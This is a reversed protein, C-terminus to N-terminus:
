EPFSGVTTRGGEVGVPRFEPETEDPVRRGRGWTVRPSRPPGVGGKERGRRLHSPTLRETKARGDRGM